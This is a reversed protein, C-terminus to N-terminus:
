KPMVEFWEALRILSQIDTDHRVESYQKEGNDMYGARVLAQDAPVGFMQALYEKLSAPTRRNQLKARDVPKSDLIQVASSGLPFRPQRVLKVWLPLQAKKDPEPALDKAAKILQV